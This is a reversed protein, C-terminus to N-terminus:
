QGVRALAPASHGDGSAVNECQSVPRSKGSWSMSTPRDCPFRKVRSNAIISSADRTLLDMRKAAKIIQELYTRGDPGLQEGYDELVATAYGQMARLPSRLDHSVTYSFEELDAIHVRLEGTREEVIKELDTAHENERRLFYHLSGNMASILVGVGTFVSMRILDITLFSVPFAQGTLFFDVCVASLITAVM